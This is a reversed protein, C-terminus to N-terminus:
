AHNITSSRGRWRAVVHKPSCILVNYVLHNVTFQSSIDLSASLLTQNFQQNVVSKIYSLVSALVILNSISTLHHYTYKFHFFSLSIGHNFRIWYRILRQDFARCLAHSFSLFQSIMSKILLPLLLILYHILSIPYDLKISSDILQRNLTRFLSRSYSYM